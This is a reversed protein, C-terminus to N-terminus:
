TSSCPFFPQIMQKRAATLFERLFKWRVYRKLDFVKRWSFLRSSDVPKLRSLGEARGEGLILFAH